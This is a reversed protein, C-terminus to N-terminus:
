SPKPSFPLSDSGPVLSPEPQQGGPSLWQPRSASDLGASAALDLVERPTWSPGSGSLLALRLDVVQGNEHLFAIADGAPSWTPAWSTGDRSV